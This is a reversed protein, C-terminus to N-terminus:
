SSWIIHERMSSHSRLLVSQQENGINLREFRFQNKL